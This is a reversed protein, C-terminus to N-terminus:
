SVVCPYKFHHWYPLVGTGEHTNWMLWQFVPKPEVCIGYFNVHPLHEELIERPIKGKENRVIGDMENVNKFFDRRTALLAQGLAWRGEDGWQNERINLGRLTRNCSLGEALHECGYNTIENQRIDLFLLRGFKVKALAQCGLDRIANDKLSLAELHFNSPLSEAIYKTGVPGLHNSKLRLEILVKNEKIMDAVIKAEAEGLGNQSLDLYILRANLDYKLAHAIPRLGAIRIPNARLVLSRLKGERKLDLGQWTLLAALMEAEELGLGHNFLDLDRTSPAIRFAAYAKSVTDKVATRLDDLELERRRQKIKLEAETLPVVHNKKDEEEKILRAEEIIDEASKGSLAKRLQL